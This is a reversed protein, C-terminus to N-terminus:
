PVQDMAAHFHEYGRQWAATDALPGPEAPDRVVGALAANEEQAFQYGAAFKEKGTM